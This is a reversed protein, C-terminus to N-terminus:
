RDDQKQAEKKAVTNNELAATEKSTSSKVGENLKVSAANASQVDTPKSAQHIKSVCPMNEKTVAPEKQNDRSQLSFCVVCFSSLARLSYLYPHLFQSNDLNLKEEGEFKILGPVTFDIGVQTLLLQNRLKYTKM